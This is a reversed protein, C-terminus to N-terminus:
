AAKNEAGTEAKAGDTKNQRAAADGRVLRKSDESKRRELEKRTKRKFFGCKWLILVLIVILLLGGLVSVLIIWWAIPKPPPTMPIIRTQIKTEHSLANFVTNTTANTIHVIATSVIESSKGNFLVNPLEINMALTLSVVASKRPLINKILCKYVLCNDISCDFSKVAKSGSTENKFMAINFKTTNIMECNVQCSGPCTVSPEELLQLYDKRKITVYPYKLYMVAEPLTSPGQNHLDYIHRVEYNDRGARMSVSDPRSLGYFATVVKRKGQLSIMATNDTFITEKSQTTANFYFQFNTETYVNPVLVIQFIVGADQRMPNGYSCVIVTENKPSTDISRVGSVDGVTKPEEINFGCQIDTEGEIKEIRKYKFSKPFIITLGTGYAPDGTKTISVNLKLFELEDIFLESEKKLDAKVSLHLNTNCDNNPCDRQFEIEKTISKIPQKAQSGDFLNIIPLVPGPQYLTVNRLEYETHFRIPSVLDSTSKVLVKVEPTRTKIGNEVSLRFNAKPSEDNHQFFALRNFQPEKLTDVSAIVDLAIAKTVVSSPFKFSVEFEFCPYTRNTDMTCNQLNQVQLITIKGFGLEIEGELQIVPRSQLLVVNNSLFAGVAFDNVQDGNIDIARSFSIGFGKLGSQVSKGSIRQTFKSWLGGRYGNYIYVAGVDEDEYPAGVAVDTYGDMNIDGLSTITTGFRARPADSGKLLSEQLQFQGLVSSGFYVFVRGEDVGSANKSAFMPAGVLLDDFTDKNVDATALASGFYGGLQSMPGNEDGNLTLFPQNVDYSSVDFKFFLVKGSLDLRPGGAAIYVAKDGFYRGSSIAYGILESTDTPVQNNQSYSANNRRLNIFGGTWSQLGPSGMLLDGQATGIYQVAMGLAGFGWNYYNVSGQPGSKTEINQGHQTLLPYKSWYSTRSVPTEYCIGNQFHHAQYLNITVALLKQDYWRHACVAVNGGNIDLAGGLWQGSKGPIFTRQQGAVNVTETTTTVDVIIPQCFKNNINCRYLVGPRDIFPMATDSDRPAGVFIWKDAGADSHIAVTYGFYSDRLNGGTFVPAGEDMINFADSTSTISMSCMIVFVLPRWM